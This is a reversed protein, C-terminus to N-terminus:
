FMVTKPTSKVRKKSPGSAGEGKSERGRSRMEAGRSCGYGRGGRGGRGRRGTERGGRGRRGERGDEGSGTKHQSPAGAVEEGKEEQSGDGDMDEYLFDDDNLDDGGQPKVPKTATVAARKKASTSAMEKGKTNREEVKGKSKAVAKTIATTPVEEDEEERDDEEVGREKEEEEEEEEEGEKEEKKGEGEEREKTPCRAALHDKRGCRHCAGGKPYLGKENKACM